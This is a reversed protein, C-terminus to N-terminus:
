GAKVVALKYSGIPLTLSYSGDNGTSPAQGEIVPDTTIKAGVVPSGTLKNTIKGSITGTAVSSAGAPGTPGPPGQCGTLLALGFFSWVSGWL